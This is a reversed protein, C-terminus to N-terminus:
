ERRSLARLPLGGPNGARGFAPKRILGELATRAVDRDYVNGDFAYYERVMELLTDLDGRDALKFTPEM